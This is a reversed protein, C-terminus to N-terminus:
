FRYYVGITPEVTQRLTHTDLQYQHMDPTKYIQGRFQGRVGFHGYVPYNFGVSYVFEPLLQSGLKPPLIGNVDTITGMPSFVIIGGGLTAFLKVGYLSPAQALYSFGVDTVNNQLKVTNKNYSEYFKTYGFNAEYGMWSRWPQHFTVLVGGSSTTDERIFNGNSANTIQYFAGVGLDYKERAEPAAPM